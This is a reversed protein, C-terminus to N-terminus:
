HFFPQVLGFNYDDVGYVEAYQFAAQFIPYNVNEPQKEAM